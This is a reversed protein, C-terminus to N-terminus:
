LTVDFTLPTTSFIHPNMIANAICRNCAWEDHVADLIRRAVDDDVLNCALVFIENLIENDHLSLTNSTSLAQQHAMQYHGKESCRESHTINSTFSM